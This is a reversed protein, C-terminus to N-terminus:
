LAHLPGRQFQPIAQLWNVQQFNIGSEPLKVDVAADLKLTQGVLGQSTSQRKNAAQHNM